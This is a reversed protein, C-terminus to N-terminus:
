ATLAASGACSRAGLRQILLAFHIEMERMVIEAILRFANGSWESSMSGSRRRRWTRSLDWWYTPTNTWTSVTKIPRSSTQQELAEFESVFPADEVAFQQTFIASTALKLYYTYLQSSYSM